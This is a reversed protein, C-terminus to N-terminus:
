VNSVRTTADSTITAATSMVSPRERRVYRPKRVSSTPTPIMAATESPQLISAKNRRYFISPLKNSRKLYFFSAVSLILFLSIFLTGFLLSAVVGPGGIKPQPPATTSANSPFYTENSYVCSINYLLTSPSEPKCRVCTTTGNEFRLQYCDPRCTANFPCSGNIDLEDVCCDLHLLPAGLVMPSECLLQWAAGAVFVVHHAAM